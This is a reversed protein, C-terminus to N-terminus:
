RCHLPQAQPSCAPCRNFGIPTKFSLQRSVVEPYRSQSLSLTVALVKNPNFGLNMQSLRAFSEIM